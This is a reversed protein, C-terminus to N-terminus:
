AEGWSNGALCAVTHPSSLLKSWLLLLNRHLVRGRVCGALLLTSSVYGEWQRAGVVLVEEEEEEEEGDGCVDSGTAM